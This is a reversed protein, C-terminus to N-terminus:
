EEQLDEVAIFAQYIANGAAKYDIGYSNANDLVM